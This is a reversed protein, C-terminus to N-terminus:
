SGSKVINITSDAELTPPVVSVVQDGQKLADSEIVTYKGLQHGKIHVVKVKNTGIVQYVFQGNDDNKVASSPVLLANAKVHLILKVTVLQSPWLMNHDNHILGKLLITGSNVNIANDIFDLIGTEIQEAGNESYVEVKLPAIKKYKLIKPLKSQTLNFVVYVPNIKNILVLPQESSANILDGVKVSVDGTRGSIPAMIKSYNVKLMTENIKEKDIKVTAQQMEAQSLIQEYAQQSVFKNKILSRMRVVNKQTDDLQAQDHALNAKAQELATIFPASDIEFLLQGKKVGEGAKFNIKNLIGSIQSRVNVSEVAEVKGPASLVIPVPKKIVSAVRVSITRMRSKHYTKSLTFRLVVALIIVLIIVLFIYKRIKSAAM